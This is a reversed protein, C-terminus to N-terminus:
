TLLGTLENRTQVWRIREMRSPIFIQTQILAQLASYLLLASPLTQTKSREARMRVRDETPGRKKTNSQMNLGNGGSAM